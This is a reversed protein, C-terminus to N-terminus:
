AAQRGHRTIVQRARASVSEAAVVHGADIDALGENVADVMRECYEFGDRLVFSLMAEPSRGAREALKRLRRLEAPKLSPEAM